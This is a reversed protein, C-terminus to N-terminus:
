SPNKALRKWLHTMLPTVDRGAGLRYQWWPDGDLTLRAGALGGLPALTDPVNATMMAAYSAGLRASPADPFIAAADRYQQLAEDYRGSRAAIRAAVVHAYYGTVGSTKADLAKAIEAAAEDRKGRHDLLRALRVRAEVFFPNVELAQRYLEEAEGNTHEESPLRAALGNWNRSSPETTVAQYLPLGLTEAYSARDFLLRADGPLIHAARALHGTADGNMGNAFLYAAIAHYWEGAFEYDDPAIVIRQRPGTVPEKLLQDILSRAFPLQWSTVDEGMIQGDRTLVIRENWLLAPRIELAKAGSRQDTTAATPAPADDPPRRFWRAFILGDSHLLAARQLFESTGPRDEVGRALDTVKRVVENRMAFRQGRLYAIFMEMAPSLEFRQRYTLSTIFKVAADPQGPEHARAAAVWRELLAASAETQAAAPVVRYPTLLLVAVIVGRLTM